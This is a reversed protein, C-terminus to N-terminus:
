AALGRARQAAANLDSMARIADHENMYEAIAILRGGAELSRVVAWVTAGDQARRPGSVFYTAGPPSTPPANGVMPVTCARPNFAANM